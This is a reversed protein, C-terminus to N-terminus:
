VDFSENPKLFTEIFQVDLIPRTQRSSILSTQSRYKELARKKIEIMSSVDVTVHNSSLKSGNKRWITYRFRKTPLKLHNLSNDVIINTARHDPHVDEHSPFYVASPKRTELINTVKARAKEFQSGLERDGFGLFMVQDSRLGLVEAAEIAEKKRMISLEEPTPNEQIGLEYLHSKRGDTMVVVMVDEGDRVKLAITGGCALTEDDPHPAFVIARETM